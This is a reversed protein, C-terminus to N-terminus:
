VFTSFHGVMAMKRSDVAIAAPTGDWIIEGKSLGIWRTCIKRLLATDHSAVVFGGPHHLLVQAISHCGPADLGATPEDWLLLTEASHQTAALAVRRAEGGSLSFPDRYLLENTAIGYKALRDRTVQENEPFGPGGIETIVMDTLFAQEPSQLALSTMFGESRTVTGESLDVIHGLVALLTTKGAGTDGLLGIREGTHIQLESIRLRHTIEGHVVANQLQISGTM